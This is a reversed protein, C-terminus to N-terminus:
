AERDGITIELPTLGGIEGVLKDGPVAAGVGAPTGTMIVDGPLLRYSASVFEIIEKTNWIMDTLNADQKVEGNVTLCVRGEEVHGVDKVLHLPAMPASQVVNKGVDWPRGKEKATQQLDRRTMDLSVGYALIYDYAQDAPINICEKGIAVALELEWHYNETILPYVITSGTPVVTDAWKTFFFPAERDVEVGMEKAHDMYNRGVCFVRRVPFKRDDGVIDVLVPPAAEVILDM